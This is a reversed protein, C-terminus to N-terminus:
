SGTTFADSLRIFRWPASCWIVIEEAFRSLHVASIAAAWSSWRSTATRCPTSRIPPPGTSVLARATM